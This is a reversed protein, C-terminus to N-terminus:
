YSIIEIRLSWNTTNFICCSICKKSNFKFNWCTGITPLRMRTNFISQSCYFILCNFQVSLFTSFNIILKWRIARQYDHLSSSVPNWKVIVNVIEVQNWFPEINIKEFFAFGM